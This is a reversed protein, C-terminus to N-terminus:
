CGCMRFLEISRDCLIDRHGVILIWEDIIDFNSALCLPVLTEKLIVILYFHVNVYKSRSYLVLIEIKPIKFSSRVLIIAKGENWNAVCNFECFVFSVANILTCPVNIEIHIYTNGISM